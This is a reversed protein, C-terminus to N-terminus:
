WELYQEKSMADQDAAFELEKIIGNWEANNALSGVPARM